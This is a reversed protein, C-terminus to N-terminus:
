IVGRSNAICRCILSIDNVEQVSSYKNYDDFCASAYTSKHMPDTMALEALNCRAALALAFDFFNTWVVLFSYRRM